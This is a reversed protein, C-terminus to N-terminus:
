GKSKGGKEKYERELSGIGKSLYDEVEKKTWSMPGTGDYPPLLFRKTKYLTSLPIGVMDAVDQPTMIRMSDNKLLADLKQEIITLKEELYM